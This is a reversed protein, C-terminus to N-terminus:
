ESLVRIDLGKSRGGEQGVVAQEFKIKKIILVVSVQGLLYM